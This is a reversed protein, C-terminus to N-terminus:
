PLWAPLVAPRRPRHHDQWPATVDVHWGPEPALDRLADVFEELEIEALREGLCRHRGHSFALPRRAPPDAEYREPRWEDPDEFVSADRSAWMFLPVVRTGAPVEVDGLVTSTDAFRMVAPTAPQLRLTEDVIAKTSTGDHLRAWNGPRALVHLLCAVQSGTTEWGGVLMQIMLSQRAPEPLDISEVHAALGVPCRRVDAAFGGLEAISRDLEERFQGSTYSWMRTMTTAADGIAVLDVESRGIIKAFVRLPYPMALADVLDASQQSTIREVFERVTTRAVDRVMPRLQEMQQRSFAPAVAARLRMQDPGDTFSSITRSWDYAPGSTLAGGSSQEVTAAWMERDELVALAMEYGWIVLSGYPDMGCWQGSGTVEPIPPKGLQDPDYLPLEPLDSISRM